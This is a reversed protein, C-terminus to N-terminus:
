KITAKSHVNMTSFRLFLKGLRALWSCMGHIPWGFSRPCSRWTGRRHCNRLPPHGLSPESSLREATSLSVIPQWCTVIPLRIVVAKLYWFKCELNFLVLSIMVQAVSQNVGNAANSCVQILILVIFDPYNDALTRRGHIDKTALAAIIVFFSWIAAARVFCSEFIIVFRRMLIACPM